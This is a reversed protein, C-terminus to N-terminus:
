ESHKCHWHAFKTPSDRRLDDTSRSRSTGDSNFVFVWRGAGRAPVRRSAPCHDPLNGARQHQSSGFCQSRSSAPSRLHHRKRKRLQESGFLYNSEVSLLFSNFSNETHKALDHSDGRLNQQSYSRFSGYALVFPKVM